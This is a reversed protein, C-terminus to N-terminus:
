FYIKKYYEVQGLESHESDIHKALESFHKFIKNCIKCKIQM